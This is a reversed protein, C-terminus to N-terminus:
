KKLEKKKVFNVQRGKKLKNLKGNEDFYRLEGGFVNAETEGKKGVSIRYQGGKYITLIGPPTHIVLSAGNKLSRIFLIIEGREIDFHMKDLETQKIKLYADGDVYMYSDPNLALVASSAEATVITDENHLALNNILKLADQQNEHCRYFVDGQVKKVVGARTSIVQSSVTSCFAFVVLALTCIKSVRLLM